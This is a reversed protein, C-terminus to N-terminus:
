EKDPDAGALGQIPNGDKDYMIILACLGNAYVELSTRKRGSQDLLTVGVANNQDLVVQARITNPDDDRISLITLKGSRDTAPRARIDGANDRLTVNATSERNFGVSV